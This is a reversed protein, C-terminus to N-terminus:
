KPVEDEAVKGQIPEMDMKDLPEDTNEILRRRKADKRDKKKSKKNTPPGAPEVTEVQKPAPTKVETIRTSPPKAVAKADLKRKIEPVDRVKVTKKEGTTAFTRCGPRALEVLWPCVTVEHDDEGCSACTIGPTVYLVPGEKVIIELNFTPRIFPCDRLDVGEKFKAEVKLRDVATQDVYKRQVEIVSVEPVAAEIAAKVRKDPVGYPVRKVTLMVNMPPHSKPVRFILGIGEAVRCLGKKIFTSGMDMTQPVVLHYARGLAMPLNVPTCALLHIHFQDRLFSVVGEVQHLSYSGVKLMKVGPAVIIQLFVTCNQMMSVMVSGSVRTLHSIAMWHAVTGLMIGTQVKWEKVTDPAGIGLSRPVCQSMTLMEGVDGVEDGTEGGNGQPSPSDTM